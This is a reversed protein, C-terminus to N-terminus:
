IRVEAVTAIARRVDAVLAAAIREDGVATGTHVRLSGDLEYVAVGRDPPAALPSGAAVSEHGIRVVGNRAARAVRRTGSPPAPERAIAAIEVITGFVIRAIVVLRAALVDDDVADAVLAFAQCRERLEAHERALTGGLGGLAADIGLRGIPAGTPRALLAALSRPSGGIWRAGRVIAAAAVDVEGETTDVVVDAAVLPVAARPAIREARPWSALSEGERVHRLLSGAPVGRRDFVTAAADSVAVVTVPEAALAALVANAVGNAGILHVTPRPGVPLLGPSQGSSRFGTTDRPVGASFQLASM